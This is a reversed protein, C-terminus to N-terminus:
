ALFPTCLIFYILPKLAISSLALVPKLYAISSMLNLAFITKSASLM